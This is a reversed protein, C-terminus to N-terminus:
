LCGEGIGSLDVALVCQCDPIKFLVESTPGTPGMQHHPFWPEFNLIKAVMLGRFLVLVVCEWKSRRLEQGKRIKYAGCLLLRTLKPSTQVIILDFACRLKWLSQM